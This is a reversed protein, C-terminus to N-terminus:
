YILPLSLFLQKVTIFKRLALIGVSMFTYWCVHPLIGVSTFMSEYMYFCIFNVNSIICNVLIQPTLCYLVNKYLENPITM